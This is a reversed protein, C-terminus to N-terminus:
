NERQLSWPCFLINSASKQNLHNHKKRSLDMSPFDRNQKSYLFKLQNTQPGARFLRALLCMGPTRHDPGPTQCQEGSTHKHGNSNTGLPACINSTLNGRLSLNRSNWSCMGWSDQSLSPICRLAHGGRVHANESGNVIREEWPTM